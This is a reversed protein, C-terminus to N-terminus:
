CSPPARLARCQRLLLEFCRDEIHTHCSSRVQTILTAKKQSQHFRFTEYAAEKAYIEQLRVSAFFQFDQLQPM